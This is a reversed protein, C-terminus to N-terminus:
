AAGRQPRHALAGALLGDRYADPAEPVYPAWPKPTGRVYWEVREAHTEPYRYLPTSPATM